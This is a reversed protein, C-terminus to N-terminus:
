LTLPPQKCERETYKASGAEVTALSPVGTAICALVRVIKGASKIEALEM